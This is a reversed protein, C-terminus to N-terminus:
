PRRELTTQTSAQLQLARKRMWWVTAGLMTLPLFTLLITTLTFAHRYEDTGSFCVACAESAEPVLVTGLLLAGAIWLRM